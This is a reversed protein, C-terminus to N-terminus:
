CHVKKINKLKMKMILQIHHHVRHLYIKMIMLNRLIISSKDKQFFNFNFKVKSNKSMLEELHRHAGEAQKRAAASDAIERAIASLM